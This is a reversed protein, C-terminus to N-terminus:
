VKPQTPHEAFLACGSKLLMVSVRPVGTSLVWGKDRAYRLAEQLEPQSVGLREQVEYVAQWTGVAGGLLAYIERCVVVALAAVLDSNPSFTDPM